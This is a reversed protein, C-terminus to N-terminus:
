TGGDPVFRPTYVLPTQGPREIIRTLASGVIIVIDNSFGSFADEVPIIGIVVGTFLALLAVLDYPLRGWILLLITASILAFALAQDLTM